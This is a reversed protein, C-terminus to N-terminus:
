VRSGIATRSSATRGRPELRFGAKRRTGSKCLRRRKPNEPDSKGSRRSSGRPEHVGIGRGPAHAERQDEPHRSLVLVPLGPRRQKLDALLDLGSRGPMTIDLIVLVWVGGEIQAMTQQADGAEGSFVDRLERVLIEKLGGRVIAHDDAILIGIVLRRGVQHSKSRGRSDASKGVNGERARRRHHVRRGTLHGAGEYGSNRPGPPFSRKPSAVAM